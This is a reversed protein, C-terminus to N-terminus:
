GEEVTGKIRVIIRDPNGSTTITITKDFLGIRGSPNYTITVTGTKGSAIPEKTWDPATCGCSTGVNTIVVPDKSNNTITFTTSVLGGSEKVTGFDYVTKDVTIDDDAMIGFNTVVAKTSFNPASMLLFLGALAPIILVYKVFNRKKM